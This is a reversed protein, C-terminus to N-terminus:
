SPVHLIEASLQLLLRPDGIHEDTGPAGQSSPQMGEAHEQGGTVGGHVDNQDAGRGSTIM